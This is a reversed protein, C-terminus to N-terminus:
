PRTILIASPESVDTTLTAYPTYTGPKFAFVSANQSSSGADAVVVTDTPQGKNEVSVAYPFLFGGISEFPATSGLQYVNVKQGEGDTVWLFGHQQDIAVGIPEVLDQLNLNTVSSGGAPLEFVANAVFDAIYLNELRTWRPM